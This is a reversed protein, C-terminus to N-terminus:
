RENPAVLRAPWDLAVISRVGPEVEFRASGGFLESIRAAIALDLGRREGSSGILREFIHPELQTAAVTPPPAKEVIVEITWRGAPGSSRIKIPADGAAAVANGLAHAIASRARTPDLSVEVPSDPAFELRVAKYESDRKAQKEEMLDALFRRAEFDVASPPRDSEILRAFDGLQALMKEIQKANEQLFTLDEDFEPNPTPNSQAIARITLGIVNLPTRLDHVVLALFRPDVDPSRDAAPRDLLCAVRGALEAEAQSALMWDDFGRARGALDPGAAVVALAPIKLGRAVGGLGSLAGTPGAALDVVVLDPRERRLVEDALIPQDSTAVALGSAELLAALPGPGPGNSFLIARAPPKM